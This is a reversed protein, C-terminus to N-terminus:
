KYKNNFFIYLIYKKGKLINNKNNNYINISINKNIKDNKEAFFIFFYLIM